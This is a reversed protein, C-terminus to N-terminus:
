VSGQNTIVRGTRGLVGLPTMVRGDVHAVDPLRAIAALAAPGTLEIPGALEPPGTPEPSGAPTVLVDVGVGAQALDTLFAARATAGYILSGGLLGVGIM